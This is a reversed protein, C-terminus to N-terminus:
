GAPIKYIFGGPEKVIKTLIYGCHAQAV